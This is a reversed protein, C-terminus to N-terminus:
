LPESGVIVINGIIGQGDGIEVRGPLEINGLSVHVDIQGDAVAQLDHDALKNRQQAVFGDVGAAIGEVAVAIEEVGNGERV